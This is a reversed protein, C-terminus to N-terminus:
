HGWHKRSQLLLVQTGWKESSLYSYTRCGQGMSVKNVKDQSEQAQHPGHLGKGM